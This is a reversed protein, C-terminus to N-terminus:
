VFASKRSLAVVTANTEIMTVNRSAHAPIAERHQGEHIAQEREDDKDSTHCCPHAAAEL